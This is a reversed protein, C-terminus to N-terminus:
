CKGQETEYIQHQTKRETTAIEKKRDHKKKKRNHKEKPRQTKTKRDHKRKAM